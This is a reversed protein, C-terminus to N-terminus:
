ELVGAAELADSPDPYAIISTVRGDSLTWVSADRWETEAGSAKGRGRWVAIAVVQDDGADIVRENDLTLREFTSMWNIMFSSMAELGVTEAEAGVADLWRVRIHPDFLEPIWFNGRTFEAGAQQVIEVNQESM